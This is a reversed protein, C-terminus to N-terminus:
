GPKTHTASTNMREQWIGVLDEECEFQHRVCVFGAAKLTNITQKVEASIETESVSYRNSLSRTIDVIRREGDCMRFILLASDNLSLTQGRYSLQNFNEGSSVSDAEVSKVIQLNFLRQPVPPSDPYIPRHVPNAWKQIWKTARLEKDIPRGANALHLIYAFKEGRENGKDFYQMFNFDPGLEFVPFNHKALRYNLVTQDGFNIQLPIPSSTDFLPRHCRSALFVGSNFYDGMWPVPPWIEMSSKMWDHANAEYFMREFRVGLRENPVMSFLDPCDPSPLTDMDLFLIREYENFWDYLQFKERHLLSRHPGKLNVEKNIQWQDIVRYDSGVKRAYAQHCPEVIRRLGSIRDGGIALSAILRKEGVPRSFRGIDIHVAGPCNIVSSPPFAHKTAPLFHGISQMRDIVRHTREDRDNGVMVISGNFTQSSLLHHLLLYPNISTNSINIVYVDTAVSIESLMGQKALQDDVLLRASTHLSDIIFPSNDFGLLCVSRDKSIQRLDEVLLCIELM